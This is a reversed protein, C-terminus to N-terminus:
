QTVDEGAAQEVLAELEADTLPISESEEETEDEETEDEEIQEVDEIDEEEVDLYQADISIDYHKLSKVQELTALFESGSIDVTIPVDTEAQGSSVLYPSRLIFTASYDPTDDSNDGSIRFTTVDVIRAAQEINALFTTIQGYGGLVGLNVVVANYPLPDVDSATKTAMDTISYSLKTVELGSQNAITDIQTLLVPVEPEEVLAKTLVSSHEEVISEFDFLKDLIGIKTDLQAHLKQRATLKERLEPLKSFYPRIILFGLLLCAVLAIIPVIFNLLTDKIQKSNINTELKM